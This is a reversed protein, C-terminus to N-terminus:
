SSKQRLVFHERAGIGTPDQTHNIRGSSPVIPNKLAKRKLVTTIANRDLNTPTKNQKSEKRSNKNGKKGGAKCSPPGPRRDDCLDGDGEGIQNKGGKREVALLVGDRLAAWSSAFSRSRGFPKQSSAGASQSLSASKKKKKKKKGPSDLTVKIEGRKWCLHCRDGRLGGGSGRRSVTLGPLGPRHRPARRPPPLCPAAGGVASQRQSGHSPGRAILRPPLGGERPSLGLRKVTNGLARCAM